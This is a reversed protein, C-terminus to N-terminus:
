QQTRDSESSAKTASSLTGASCSTAGRTQSDVIRGILFGVGYTVVAWYAILVLALPLVHDWVEEGHIGLAALIPMVILFLPLSLPLIVHFLAFGRLPELLLCLGALAFCIATFGIGCRRPLKM